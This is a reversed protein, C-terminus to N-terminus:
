GGEARTVKPPRKKEPEPAAEEEVPEAEEPRPGRQKPVHVHRNTIAERL